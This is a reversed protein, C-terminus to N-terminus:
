NSLGTELISLDEIENNTREWCYNWQLPDKLCQRDHTNNIYVNGLM